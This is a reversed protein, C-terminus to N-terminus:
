FTIPIGFRGLARHAAGDYTSVRVFVVFGDLPLKMLTAYAENRAGRAFGGPNLSYTRFSTGMEELEKKEMEKSLMGRGKWKGSWRIDDGWGLIAYDLSRGGAMHETCARKFTTCYDPSSPDEFYNRQWVADEPTPIRIAKAGRPAGYELMNRSESSVIFGYSAERGEYRARCYARAHEMDATAYVRYGLNSLKGLIETSDRQFGEFFRESWLSQLAGIRERLLEMRDECPAALWDSLGAEGGEKCNLALYGGLREPAFINGMGNRGPNQRYGLPMVCSFTKRGRTPAHCLALARAVDVMRDCYGYRASEATGEPLLDLAVVKNGLLLVCPAKLGGFLEVGFAIGGGKRVSAEVQGLQARLLGLHEAWLPAKAHLAGECQGDRLFDAITGAWIYQM